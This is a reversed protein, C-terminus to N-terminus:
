SDKGEDEAIKAAKMEELDDIQKQIDEVSLDAMLWTNAKRVAKEIGDILKPDTDNLFRKLNRTNFPVDAGSEDILSWGCIAAELLIHKETGSQLKLFADGSAKGIRVDKQVADLYMKRRGENLIRHEIFSVGDPLFHQETREFGFYSQQRREETPVGKERMASEIGAVRASEAAEQDQTAIDSM